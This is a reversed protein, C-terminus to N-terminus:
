IPTYLTVPSSMRLNLKRRMEVSAKYFLDILVIISSNKNVFCM